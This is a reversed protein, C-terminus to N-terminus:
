NMIYSIVGSTMINITATLNTNIVRIVIQRNTSLRGTLRQFAVDVVGGALPAVYEITSSLHKTEHPSSFVEGKFLAYSDLGSTPNTFRVGWSSGEEQIMAKNQAFYLYGVIEQTANRLIMATRQETFYFGFGIGALIVTIFLVLLIEMLSFGSINKNKFDNNQSM